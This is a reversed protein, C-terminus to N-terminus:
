REAGSLCLSKTSLRRKVRASYVSPEAPPSPVVPLGPIVATRLVIATRPVVSVNLTAATTPGSSINLVVPVCPATAVSPEVTVMSMAVVLISSVAAMSYVVGASPVVVM